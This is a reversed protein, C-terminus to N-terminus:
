RAEFHIGFDKLISNGRGIIRNMIVKLNRSYPDFDLHNVRRFHGERHSSVCKLVKETVPMGLFDTMKKVEHSVNFQLKEYQVPLVPINSEKLWTNLMMFWSFGKYEVLWDWKPNGTTFVHLIGM